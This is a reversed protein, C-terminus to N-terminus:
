SFEAGIGVPSRYPDLLDRVGDAVIRRVEARNERFAPGFFPHAPAPRPGGHGYEVAYPYSYQFSGTEKNNWISTAVKRDLKVYASPYIQNKGPAVIIAAATRGSVSHINEIAADRIPELAGVLLGRFKDTQGIDGLEVLRAVAEKLGKSSINV